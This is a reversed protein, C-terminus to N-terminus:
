YRRVMITIFHRSHSVGMRGNNGSTLKGEALDKQAHYLPIQVIGLGMRAASIYSEAANVSITAAIALHRVIGEVIFELPLM